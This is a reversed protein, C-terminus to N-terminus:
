CAQEIIQLDAKGQGVTMNVTIGVLQMLEILLDALRRIVPQEITM